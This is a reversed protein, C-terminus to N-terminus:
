YHGVHGKSDPPRLVKGGGGGAVCVCENVSDSMSVTVCSKAHKLM